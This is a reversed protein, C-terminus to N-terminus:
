PKGSASPCTKSQTSQESERGNLWWSHVAAVIILVAALGGTVVEPIHIQSSLLMIMALAGIAWFAGHELYRLASLTGKNVLYLTFSRVFMAGIGLGISILFIDKTLAFAGLVGDFSFSADRMEVYIFGSWGIKVASNNEGMIAGLGDVIIYVVISWLAAILFRHAEDAPMFAALALLTLLTLLISAMDLKGLKSLLKEVPAFWHENKEYDIFFHWFVMLLFTGGFSVVEIHASQLITSYREPQNIAMSMVDTSAWQGSQIWEILSLPGPLPWLHALIGVIILPFLLRMGFVAVLMGWVLYRQRWKEDWDKLVAANVVANDFSLSTELMALNFAIWLGPWGGIWLALGLGIATVLISSRFYKLM